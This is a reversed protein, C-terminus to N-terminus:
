AHGCFHVVAGFDLHCALVKLDLIWRYARTSCVAAVVPSATCCLLMGHALMLMGRALM